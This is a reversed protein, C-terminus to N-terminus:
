FYFLDVSLYDKLFFSIFLFRVTMSLPRKVNWTQNDSFCHRILINPHDLRGIINVKGSVITKVRDIPIDSKIKKASIRTSKTTKRVSQRKTKGVRLTPIDCVPAITESVVSNTPASKVFASLDEFSQYDDKTQKM